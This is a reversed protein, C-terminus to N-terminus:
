YNKLDLARLQNDLSKDDSLKANGQPWIEFQKDEILEDLENIIPTYKIISENIFRSMQEASLKKDYNKCLLDPINLYDCFLDATDVIEAKVAMWAMEIKEEDSLDEWSEYHKIGVYYDIKHNLEVRTNCARFAHSKM